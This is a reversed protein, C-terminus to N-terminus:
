DFVLEGFCDPRHFSRGDPIPSWMAWHPHSTDDACKYFNARWTQGTLPRAIPEYHEFLSLPINYEISWECAEDREPDICSPLSHQINIEKVLEAPVEQREDMLAVGEPSVPICYLLLCGGASVEFNFYLGGANPQVFFEVCSDKCVPDQYNQAVARVYRDIVDFRIMLQHDNYVVRAETQPRHDSGHEFFTDIKLPPVSSWNLPGSTRLISYNKKHM